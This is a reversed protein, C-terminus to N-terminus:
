PAGRRGRLGLRAALAGAAGLLGAPLLWDPGDQPGAGTSPLESVGGTEPTETPAVTATATETPAIIATETPSVGTATATPAMTATETPAVTATATPAVTATETPVTTATETTTATDTPVNTVTSTPPATTTTTTTTGSACGTVWFDKVKQAGGLTGSANITLRVHVGQVPDPDIGTFDLTYTESADLDSGGGASDEGIFVSDTLLTVPGGPPTPPIAEFTVSAFLNDQPYNYFDVQFTCGSHTDDNAIDDVLVDDVRILGSDTPPLTTTPPGSTTPPVQM